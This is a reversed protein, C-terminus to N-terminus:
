FVIFYETHNYKMCYYLISKQHNDDKYSIDIEYKSNIYNAFVRKKAILIEVFLEHLKHSSIPELPTFIDIFKNANNKLPDKVYHLTERYSENYLQLYLADYDVDEGKVKRYFTEFRIRPVM